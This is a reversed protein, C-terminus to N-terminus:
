PKDEFSKLVLNCNKYEGDVFFYGGGELLDKVQMRVEDCGARGALSEWFEDSGENVTFEFVYKKM